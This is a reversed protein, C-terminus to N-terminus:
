WRCSKKFLQHGDSLISKPPYVEPDLRTTFIVLAGNSDLIAQKMEQLESEYEESDSLNVNDSLEPIWGAPRGTLFYIPFAENSYIVGEQALEKVYDITQSSRWKKSTFGIGKQHMESLIIKSEALNLAFRAMIFVLGAILIIRGIRKADTNSLIIVFLIIGMLYIPSLIRNNLKTSADIFTISFLLSLAYAVIFLILLSLFINSESLLDISGNIERERKLRYYISIFIYGVTILLILLKLYVNAPLPSIWSSITSLGQELVQSTPPHYLFTRNTMSGTLIYNRGLWYIIPLVCISIYLLADSLRKRLSSHGLILIGLIAVGITTIGIYRTLYACTGIIAATILWIKRDTSFYQMLAIFLLLLLVLFVSESMAMLNTDIIIPSSLVLLATLLGALQNRTIKIVIYGTLFILLGFCASAILKSAVISQTSTILRTIAIAISYLPPYHTLYIVNGFADFRSLGNGSLLNDAASLYFVSDYGVGIGWPTSFWILLAGAIGLVGLIVLSSNPNIWDIVQSFYKSGSKKM